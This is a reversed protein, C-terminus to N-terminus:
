KEADEPFAKGWMAHMRHKYKRLGNLCGHMANTFLYEPDHSMALAEDSIVFTIKSVRSTLEHELFIRGSAKKVEEVEQKLKENEARLAGMEQELEVLGFLVRGSKEEINALRQRIFEGRLSM